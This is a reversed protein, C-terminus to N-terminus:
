SLGSVVNRMLDHFPWQCRLPRPARLHARQALEEDNVFMLMPKDPEMLMTVLFKTNADALANADQYRIVDGGPEWFAEGGNIM